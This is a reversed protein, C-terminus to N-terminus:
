QEFWQYLVEASADSGIIRLQQGHCMSISREGDWLFGQTPTPTSASFYLRISGTIQMYLIYRANGGPPQINVVSTINTLNVETGHPKTSTPLNVQQYAKRPSVTQTM